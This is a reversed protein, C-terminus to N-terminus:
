INAFNNVDQTQMIKVIYLPFVKIQHPSKMIGVIGKFKKVLLLLRKNVFEGYCLTPRNKLLLFRKNVFKAYCLTYRKKKQGALKIIFVNSIL